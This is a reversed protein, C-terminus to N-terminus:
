PPYTINMDNYFLKYKIYIYIFLTFINAWPFHSWSKLTNNEFECYLITAQCKWTCTVLVKSIVFQYQKMNHNPAMNVRIWIETHYWRAVILSNGCMCGISLNLITGCKPCMQICSAQFQSWKLVKDGNLPRVQLKTQEWWQRWDCTLNLCQKM